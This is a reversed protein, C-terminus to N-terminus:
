GKERFFLRPHDGGLFPAEKKKFFGEPTLFGRKERWFNWGGNKRSGGRYVGEFILIEGWL